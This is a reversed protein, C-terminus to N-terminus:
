EGIPVGGVIGSVLGGSRGFAELKVPGFYRSFTIAYETSDLLTGTPSYQKATFRMELLDNYTDVPTVLRAPNTAVVDLTAVGAGTAAAAGFPTYSDYQYSDVVPQGVTVRGPLLRRRENLNQFGNGVNSYTGLLETTGSWHRDLYLGLDGNPGEIHLKYAYTSLNPESFEMTMSMSLGHEFVWEDGGMLTWFEESGVGLFLREAVWFTSLSMTDFSIIGLTSEIEDPHIELIEGTNTRQLVVTENSSLKSPEVPLSVRVPLLFPTDSTLTVARGIAKFGAHAQQFAENATIHVPATVAGAPIEVKVRALKGDTIEFMGGAPAITASAAPSSGGGSGSCASLLLLFLPLARLTLMPRHIQLQLGV